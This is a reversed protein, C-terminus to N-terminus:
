HATPTKGAELILRKGKSQGPPWCTALYLGSKISVDVPVEEGPNLFFKKITLYRFTQGNYHLLVEDDREMENLRSFVWEYNRKPWNPPASHGAIMVAGKEGPLVSTPYHVVGNKLARELVENDTNKEFVIPARVGLKPIEIFSEWQPVSPKKVAPSSKNPASVSAPISIKAPTPIPTSTSVPVQVSIPSPLSTPSIITRNSVTFNQDQKEQKKFIKEYVTEYNFRASIGTFNLFVWVLIFIFVFIRIFRRTRRNWFPTKESDEIM